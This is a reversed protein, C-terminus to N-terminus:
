EDAAKNKRRLQDLQKKVGVNPNLEIARNLAAEALQNKEAKAYAEGLARKLKARVQDPMDHEATLADTRTIIEEPVNGGNLAAEAIEEALLTATDRQYQEPTVLGHTIAYDGIDLATSYDGTDVMWVMITMLIDDQRGSNSALIGDIYGQYAPIMGRKAEIKREVSQIEKLSRKHDALQLLMQEYIALDSQSAGDEIQLAAAKQYHRKAHSIM